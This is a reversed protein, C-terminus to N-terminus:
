RFSRPKRRGSTRRFHVSSTSKTISLADSRGLKGDNSNGAGDEGTRGGSGITAGEAPPAGSKDRSPGKSAHIIQRSALIPHRRVLTSLRRVCIRIVTKLQIIRPKQFIDPRGFGSVREGSYQSRWM